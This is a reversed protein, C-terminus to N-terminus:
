HKPMPDGVEKVKCGKYRQSIRVHWKQEESPDIARLSLGRNVDAVM